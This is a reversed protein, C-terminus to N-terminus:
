EEEEQQHIVSILHRQVEQVIWHEEALHKQFIALAEKFKDIAKGLYGQDWLVIGINSLNHGILVHNLGYTIKNIQYAKRFCSLADELDNLDKLIWGLDVLSSALMPQDTGFCCENIAVARQICDKAKDLDGRDKHTWGLNTLDRAVSPHLTGFVKLDIEYARGFYALAKDLEGSQKLVLGINVAYTAIDPAFPGLRSEAEVLAREFCSLAKSLENKDKFLWGLSNMDYAISQSAPSEMSIELAKRIYKQAEDLNGQAKLIDGLNRFDRALNPHNSSGFVTRDIKLARQFCKTSERLKGRSQLVWGLTTYCTAVEPHNDGYFEEAIGIAQFCAAEADEYNAIMNLYYAINDWLIVAYKAESRELVSAVAKAHPYLPAFETPRGSSNAKQALTALTNALIPLIDPANNQKHAYESLLPHITYGLKDDTAQLLGVSTLLDLAEYCSERSCGSARELVAVPIINNPSCYGSMLFIRRADEGVILKWSLAFTAALDLDHGTPSGREGRWRRMSPHNGVDELEQLYNDVSLSVIHNLYRRALELALPLHGLHNGLARLDDDTARDKSLNQRLFDFSEQPTFSDLRMSRLRLDKPWDSRRSTILLRVSPMSLRALWRRATILDSFDDLIILRHGGAAWERLTRAVQDPQQQPWGSLGMARGCAVIELELVDPRAVDLWHVGHFYCGYRYAIEVMLQTKGVGGMGHVVQSNASPTAEKRIFHSAVAKMIRARGTFLDNRNFPIRSGPPLPKPSPLFHSDPFPPPNYKRSVHPSAVSTFHVGGEIRVKDGVVGVESEGINLHRADIRFDDKM